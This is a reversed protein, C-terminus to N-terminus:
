QIHQFHTLIFFLKNNYCPVIVYIILGYYLLLLKKQAKLCLKNILSEM